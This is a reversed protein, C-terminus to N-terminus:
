QPQAGRAQLGGAGLQQAADRARCQDGNLAMRQHDPLGPLLLQQHSIGGAPLAPNVGIGQNLLGTILRQSHQAELAAGAGRFRAKAQAPKDWRDLLM